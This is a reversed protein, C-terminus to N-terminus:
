REFVSGDAYIRVTRVDGGIKYVIEKFDSGNHEELVYDVSEMLENYARQFPTLNATSSSQSVNDGRGAKKAEIALEKTLQKIKTEYGKLMKVVTESRLDTGCLPCFEGKVYSVALKSGCKKCGRFESKHTHISNERAYKEAQEQTAQIRRQLEEAKKTM